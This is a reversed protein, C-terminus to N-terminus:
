DSRMANGWMGDGRRETTRCEVPEDCLESGCTGCPIYYFDLRQLRGKNNERYSGLTTRGAHQSHLGSVQDLTLLSALICDSAALPTWRLLWGFRLSSLDLM